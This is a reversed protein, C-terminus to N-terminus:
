KIEEFTWNKYYQRTSWSGYKECVADITKIWEKQYIDLAYKKLVYNRGNDGMKEREEKSMEIMQIMAKQFGEESIRDEFIFPIEQTGTLTKTAVPIGIGCQIDGDKVQEQLGGTLTTIIPRSCSMSEITSMGVGEADSINITCDCMNYLVPMSAQPMQEIHFVVSGDNLNYYSILAELDSGFQDKPNTHLLLVAKDKGIKELLNKFWLILTAGQKRRANRNNWFFVVKDKGQTIKDREAKLTVLDEEATAKVFLGTDVSLPIHFQEVSPSVISHIDKTVESMSVLIDTSNYFKRNFVPYPYNDWVSYYVMPIRERIEPAIDWLWVYFRPDTMFWLLDPKEMMLMSRVQQPDGFDNVPYIVWDDEYEETKIPQYNPHRIAGAFSSVTYRGTKLLGEIFNRAQIGVGSPALPSDSITFIKKKTM